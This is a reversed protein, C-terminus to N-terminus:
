LELGRPTRVTIGNLGEDGAVADAVESVTRPCVSNIRELM